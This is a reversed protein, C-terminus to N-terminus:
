GKRQRRIFGLGALATALLGLTAPEPVTPPSETVFATGNAAGLGHGAYNQVLTLAATALNVSYISTGDVAYMVGDDGEALGFVATLPSGGVSFDGIVSSTVSTGSLTLRVLEDNATGPHIASEYLFGGSFALDGASAAGTSGTFTTAAGATTLSYLQLTNGSAAYLSSGTSGVLANMGSSGLGGYSAVLSAAATTRSISYLGTFTTGFLNGNQFAIDTLNGGLGTNGIITVAGNSLNVTGIVGNADDIWLPGSPVAHAGAGLLLTGLGAMAVLGAARQVASM